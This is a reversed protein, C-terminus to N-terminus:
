ETVLLEMTETLEQQDLQGQRGQLEMAEMTETLEQQDLQELIVPQDLLTQLQLLLVM